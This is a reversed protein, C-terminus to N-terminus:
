RTVKQARGYRVITTRSARSRHRKPKSAKSTVLAVIGLFAAGAGIALASKATFPPPKTSATRQLALEGDPNYLKIDADPYAVAEAVAAMADKQDAFTHGTDVGGLRVILKWYQSPTVGGSPSGAMHQAAAAGQAAAVVDGTHNVIPHGAAVSAATSQAADAMKQALVADTIGAAVAAAVPSESATLTQAIQNAQQTAATAQTMAAHAAQAAAAKDAPTTAYQALELGAAAATSLDSAHALLPAVAPHNYTWAITGNQFQALVDQYIHSWVPIQKQDLASKPDLKRTIGTKAAFRADAEAYLQAQIEPTITIAMINEKKREGRGCDAV